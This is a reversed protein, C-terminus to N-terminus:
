PVGIVEQRGGTEWDPCSSSAIGVGTVPVRQQFRNIVARRRAPQALQRRHVHQAPHQQLVVGTGDGCVPPLHDSPPLFFWLAFTERRAM